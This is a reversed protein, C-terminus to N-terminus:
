PKQKTFLSAWLYHIFNLLIYTVRQEFKMPAKYKTTINHIHTLDTYLGPSKRTSKLVSCIHQVSEPTFLRLGRRQKVKHIFDDMGMCLWEPKIGDFKC